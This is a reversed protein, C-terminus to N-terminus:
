QEDKRASSSVNEGVSRCVLFCFIKLGELSQRLFPFSIVLSCM